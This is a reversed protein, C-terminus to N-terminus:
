TFKRRNHRFCNADPIVGHTFRGCQLEQSSRNEAQSIPSGDLQPLFGVGKGCYQIELESIPRPACRKGVTDPFLAAGFLRQCVQPLCKEVCTLQFCLEAEFQEVSVRRFNLQTTCDCEVQAFNAADAGHGVRRFEFAQDAEIAAIQQLTQVLDALTKVLPEGHLAGPDLILERCLRGLRGESDATAAAVGCQLSQRLAQRKGIYDAAGGDLKVEGLAIRCAGAAGECGIAAAQHAAQAFLGRRFDGIQKVAAAMRARGLRAALVRRAPGIERNLLLRSEDRTDDQQWRQLFVLVAQGSVQGRRQTSSTVMPRDRRRETETM